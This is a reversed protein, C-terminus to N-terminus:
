CTAKDYPHDIMPLWNRGKDPWNDSFFTRDGYKNNAIHLGSAPIGHYSIVYRSRQNKNTPAALTIYLNNSEHKFVLPKGNLHVSTIIMGKNGLTASNNVLDLRLTTIGEMMFKVDITAECYIADSTDSLHINFAYNQIDIRPDKPYTDAFSFLPILFSTVLSLVYRNM